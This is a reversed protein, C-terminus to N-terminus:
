NKSARIHIKARPPNLSLDPGFTAELSNNKM